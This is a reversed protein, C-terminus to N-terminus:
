YGLEAEVKDKIGKAQEGSVEEFELAILRHNIIPDRGELEKKFYEEREKVQEVVADLDVGEGDDTNVAEMKRHEVDKYQEWLEDTEKHDPDLDPFIGTFDPAVDESGGKDAIQLIKSKSYFMFKGREPIEVGFDVKDEVFESDLNDIDNTCGGSYMNKVAYTKMVKNRDKQETNMGDRKHFLLEIEDFHNAKYQEGEEFAENFDKGNFILNKDPITGENKGEEIIRCTQLHFTTKGTRNGGWVVGVLDTDKRLLRRMNRLNHKYRRWGPDEQKTLNHDLGQLFEYGHNKDKKELSIKTVGLDYLATNLSTFMERYFKVAGDDVDKWSDFRKPRDRLQHLKRYNRGTDQLDGLHPELDWYFNIVANRFKDFVDKTRNRNFQAMYQKAMNRSRILDRKTTRAEPIAGTKNMNFSERM